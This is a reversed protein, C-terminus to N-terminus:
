LGWLAKFVAPELDVERPQGHEEQRYITIGVRQIHELLPRYRIGDYPKVDFSYPMPLSDLAEAISEAKLDDAIGVLALDVDSQPSHTGKARSGFLTVARIEPIHRFIAHMLAIERDSLGMPSM